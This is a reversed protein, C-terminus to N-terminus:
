VTNINGNVGNPFFGGGTTGPNDNAYVISLVQSTTRVIALANADLTFYHTGFAPSGPVVDLSDIPADEVYLLNIFLRLNGSHLAEALAIQAAVGLYEKSTILPAAGGYASVGTDEFARALIMFGRIGYYLNAGLADLNIAPKAVAYSGLASRLLKVHTQEDHALEEVVRYLSNIIQISTDFVVKRGGTTPGPTGTGTVGCGFDEINGGYACLTYFEAELYELNLAFNLIDVDTIGAAEVKQTKLGLARGVPTSDLAGMKGAAFGAAALGLGTVGASKLFKRRDSIKQEAELKQDPELRQETNVASRRM